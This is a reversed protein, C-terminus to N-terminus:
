KKEYKESWAKTIGVSTFIAAVATIYQAMGSLDTHITHENFVEVLLIIIPVILLLIGVITVSVLFFNKSSVGTNNQILKLLYNMTEGIPSSGMVGFNFTEYEVLQALSLLYYPCLSKFGRCYTYLVYARVLQAIGRFLM